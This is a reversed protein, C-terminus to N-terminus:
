KLLTSVQMRHIKMVCDIFIVFHFINLFLDDYLTANSVQAFLVQKSYQPAFAFFFHKMSSSQQINSEYNAIQMNLREGLRNTIPSDTKNAKQNLSIARSQKSEM